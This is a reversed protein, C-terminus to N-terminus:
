AMGVPALAGRNQVQLILDGAIHGGIQPQPQRAFLYLPERLAVGFVRLRVEEVALRNVLEATKRRLSQFGGDVVAAPRDFLIWIVREGVGPEAPTIDGQARNM